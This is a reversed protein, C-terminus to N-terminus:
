NKWLDLYDQIHESETEGIYQLLMKETSHGTVAMIVKNPLKNYHNTAFSRRCCHSVLLEWKEFTSVEKKHTKPNQRSGKVKETLGARKGVEKIYKNFKVDSIPRPFGNHKDIIELVDPHLPVKVTKGTKSQTYQIIQVDKHKKINSRTLAMLDNVRAGVWCGIILWEKANNLYDPGNFVKILKLDRENLTTFIAKETPISFKRSISLPNIEMGKDMSDLCVTKIQRFDKGISNISLKLTSQAFELYSTHFNLDIDKLVLTKGYHNEYKRLRQITTNYNRLTGASIPRGNKHTKSLREKYKELLLLLEDGSSKHHSTAETLVDKLWEATLNLKKSLRENRRQYVLSEMNKLTNELKLKGEFSAKPKLWQKEKSWFKNDITLGTPSKLDVKRGDRLRLYIMAPKSGQLFYKVTAM